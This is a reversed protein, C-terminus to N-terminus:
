RALPVLPELAGVTSLKARLKETAQITKGPLERLAAIKRAFAVVAADDTIDFEGLEAALRIVADVVSDLSFDYVGLREDTSSTVVDRAIAYATADTIVPSDSDWGIRAAHEAFIESAFANYTSVTPTAFGHDDDALHDINIGFEAFKARHHRLLAIRRRFREALERAAKRTFTLGLVEEPRVGQTAILWLARLSMTETKGSGAGALVLHVGERSMAIVESQEPVPAFDLGLLDKLDNPTINTV